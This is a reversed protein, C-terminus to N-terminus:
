GREDAVRAIRVPCRPETAVGDALSTEAPAGLQLNTRELPEFTHRYPVLQYLVGTPIRAQAAADILAGGFEITPSVIVLSTFRHERITRLTDRRSQRFLDEEFRFREWATLPASEIDHAALDRRVSALGDVEPLCVTPNLGPEEGLARARDRIRGRGGRAFTPTLIGLRRDDLIGKSM